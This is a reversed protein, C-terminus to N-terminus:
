PEGDLLHSVDVRPVRAREATLIALLDDAAQEVKGNTIAYDYQPLSRIEERAVDIRRRQVEESESRRERLRRALEEWSPPLMYVLVAEPRREKVQVAGQVEIELVVDSGVALQDDVWGAPTGYRNDLYTAWELLEGAQARRDFEEPTVFFYDVGDREETRRPRTTVSISRRLRGAGPHPLSMATAVVTGKGVGSPGSLVV